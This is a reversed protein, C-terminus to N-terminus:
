EIVSDIKLKRTTLSHNNSLLVQSAQLIKQRVAEIEPGLKAVCMYENSSFNAANSGFILRACCFREYIGSRLIPSTSEASHILLRDDSRQSGWPCHLLVCVSSSPLWIEGRFTDSIRFNEWQLDVNICQHAFACSTTDKHDSSTDARLLIQM